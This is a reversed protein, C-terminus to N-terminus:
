SQLRKITPKPATYIATTFLDIKDFISATMTYKNAM